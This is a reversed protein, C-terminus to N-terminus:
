LAGGGGAGNDGTRSTGGSRAETHRVFAVRLFSVLRADAPRSAPDQLRAAFPSLLETVREGLETLEDATLYLSVDGYQEAQQWVRPLAARQELAHSMKSFYNEALAVNLAASAETVEPDDSYDPWDTFQATARWPKERGRGGEAEEVLDYKALMRLHYSCSAVSQGTLEAARTATLPGERRLLGVLEMRTPHAYARLARPDSLQTCDAFPDPQPGPEGDADPRVSESQQQSRESRPSM